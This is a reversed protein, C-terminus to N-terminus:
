PQIWERGDARILEDAAKPGWSGAPYTELPISADDQWRDLISQVYEWSRQVFRSGLFLTHDGAMVDLLLREYADPSQGNFEAAYHLDMRVPQIALDLGPRKALVELSFGERASNSDRAHRAAADGPSQVPNRAGTQVPRFDRKRAAAAAQRHASLVARGGM